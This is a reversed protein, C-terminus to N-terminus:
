VATITEIKPLFTGEWQIGVCYIHLVCAGYHHSRFILLFCGFSLLWIGLIWSVTNLGSTKEKRVGETNWYLLTKHSDNCGIIIWYICLYIETRDAWVTKGGVLEILTESHLNTSAFWMDTFVFQKLSRFPSNWYKLYTELYEPLVHSGM